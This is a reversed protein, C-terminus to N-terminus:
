TTSEGLSNSSTLAIKYTSGKTLESKTETTLNAFYTAQDVQRDLRSYSGQTM